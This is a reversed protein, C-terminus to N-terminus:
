NELTITGNYIEFSDKNWRSSVMGIPAFSTTGIGETSGLLVGEFESKKWSGNTLVINKAGDGMVKVLQPVDWNIVKPEFAKTTIKM